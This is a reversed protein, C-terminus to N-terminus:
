QARRSLGSETVILSAATLLKLIMSRDWSGLDLLDGLAFLCLLGGGASCSLRAFSQHREAKQLCVFSCFLLGVAAAKGTWDLNAGQYKPRGEDPLSWSSRGGKMEEFGDILARPSFGLAHRVRVMFCARLVSRFGNCRFSKTIKQWYRLNLKVPNFTRASPALGVYDLRETETQYTSFLRDWIILVGAYNCNGPPRHHMRHHFPTNLIYELLGLRGCLETHIWFQYLTNLQLHVSISEAPFFLALPLSFVWTMLPQLAGQRLATALNYDEGSHHVSHAAWGVHLGHLTRHAWYYALDVGMRPLGSHTWRM